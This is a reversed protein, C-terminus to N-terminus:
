SDDYTLSQRWQSDDQAAVDHKTMTDCLRYITLILVHSDLGTMDYLLCFFAHCNHESFLSFLMYKDSDKIYKNYQDIPCLLGGLQPHLFGHTISKREKVHISPLLMGGPMLAAVYSLGSDCLSSIDNSHGQVAAQSM